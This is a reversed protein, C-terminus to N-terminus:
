AIGTISCFGYARFVAFAARMEALMTVLNQTFQSNVYGMRVVAQERDRVATLNIQENVVLMADLYALLQAANPEDITVGLTKALAVLRNADTPNAPETVHSQTREAGCRLGHAGPADRM